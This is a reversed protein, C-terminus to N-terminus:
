PMEGRARRARVARAIAKRAAYLRAYATQAPCGLVEAVEPMTLQEVEYLVFVARKDADIGELLALAAVLAQDKALADFPTPAREEPEPTQAFCDERRRAGRERARAAHRLCIAYLWTRLSSRGEFGELRRHVVLFVEQVVDAIDVDPVGLCCLIRAVYAGHADFVEAITPAAAEEVTAEEVTALAAEVGETWSAQM